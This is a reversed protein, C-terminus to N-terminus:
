ITKEGQSEAIPVLMPERRNFITVYDFGCKKALAMGKDVNGCLKEPVHADSGVTIYQGGMDHFRQIYAEGPLTDGLPMAIGSTNIELAKHNKILTEFIEGIVDDFRTMDVPIKQEGVMYRLPYTLHALSDFGDWKALELEKQFYRSLLDYVDKDKYDMFFFDEMEPLNHISGLVFDYNFKDLIHNALPINYIAQGLEIGQLVLLQGEFYRKCEFTEVYQNTCLARFDETKSDIECHDTIAICSAGKAVATECLLMCSQKGDFSHDSHTHLDVLNEYHM